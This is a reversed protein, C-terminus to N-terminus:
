SDFPPMVHIARCFDPVLEVDAAHQEIARELDPPEPMEAVVNILHVLRHM